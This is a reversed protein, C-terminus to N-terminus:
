NQVLNRGNLWAVDMRSPVTGMDWRGFGSDNEQGQQNIVNVFLNM